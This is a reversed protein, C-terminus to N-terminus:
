FAADVLGFSTLPWMQWFCVGFKLSIKLLKASKKKRFQRNESSTSPGRTPRRQLLPISLATPPSVSNPNCLYYCKRGRRVNGKM